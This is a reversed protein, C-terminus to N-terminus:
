GEMPGAAAAVDAANEPLAAAEAFVKMWWPDPIGGKLAVVPNTITGVGELTVEMTDGPKITRLGQASPPHGTILLDGPELTVYHSLYHILKPVSTIMKSTSSDQAVQGNLKGTLGLNSYDVGSVFTDGLPQWTDNAKGLMRDVSFLGGGRGYGKGDTGDNGVAVAFVSAAADALPINRGGKGIMVVMTAGMFPDEVEAPLEVEDGNAALSTHFKPYFSPHKAHFPQNGTGDYNYEVGIVKRVDARDVPLTLKVDSLKVTKGTPKGGKAYFGDLQRITDGDLIGYSAQGGDIYRCYQTINSSTVL